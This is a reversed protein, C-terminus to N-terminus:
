TAVSASARRIASLKIQNYYSFLYVIFPSMKSEHGETSSSGKTTPLWERPPANRKQSVIWLEHSWTRDTRQGILVFILGVVIISGLAILVWSWPFYGIYALYVGLGLLLLFTIVVVSKVIGTWSSEGSWKFLGSLSEILKDM